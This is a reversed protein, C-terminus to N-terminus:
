SMYDTALAAIRTQWHFNGIAGSCKEGRPFHITVNDAEETAKVTLAADKKGWQQKLTISVGGNGDDVPPDISLGDIKSELFGLGRSIQQLQGM